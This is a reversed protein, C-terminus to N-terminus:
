IVLWAGDDLKNANPIHNRLATVKDIVDVDYAERCHKVYLTNSTDANDYYRTKINSTLLLQTIQEHREPQAQYQYNGTWSIFPEFRLGTNQELRALYAPNLETSSQFVIRPIQRTKPQNNGTLTTVSEITEM